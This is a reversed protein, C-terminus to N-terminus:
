LSLTTTPLTVTKQLRWSKDFPEIRLQWKGKLDADSSFHFDGKGDATLLLSIDRNALTSHFLSLNISSSDKVGNLHIILENDIQTVLANINRSQANKLLTFDANIAKGKSYYDDVVMDPKNHSAIILTSIGGIVATLPLIILFWPWFQKFWKKNSNKM